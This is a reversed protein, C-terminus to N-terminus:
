YFEVKGFLWSRLAGMCLCSIRNRFSGAQQRHKSTGDSRYLSCILGFARWAAIKPPCTSRLVADDNADNSVAVMGVERVMQLPQVSRRRVTM